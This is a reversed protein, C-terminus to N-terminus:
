RVHYNTIWYVHNNLFINIAASLSVRKQIRQSLFNTDNENKSILFKIVEIRIGGFPNIATASHVIKELGLCSSLKSSRLRYSYLHVLLRKRYCLLFLSTLQERCFPSSHPSTCYKRNKRKRPVLSLINMTQSSFSSRKLFIKVAVQFGSLVIIFRIVALSQLLLSGSQLLVSLLCYLNFWFGM